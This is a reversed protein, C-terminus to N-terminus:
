SMYLASCSCTMVEKSDGEDDGADDASGDAESAATGNGEEDGKKKREKDRHLFFGTLDEYLLDAHTTQNKKSLAEGHM